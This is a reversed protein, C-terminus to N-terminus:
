LRRGFARLQAPDVGPVARACALLQADTTRPPACARLRDPVATAIADRLYRRADALVEAHDFALKPPRALAHWGTAAADDGAEAVVPGAPLLALYVASVTRGRPDRDPRDYIGLLATRSVRVGAEELLERRAATATGEDMDVFGGPLAWAGRYPAKKRQILLVRLRASAADLAVAVVDATLAPRPYDYTFSM